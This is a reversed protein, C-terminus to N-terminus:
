RSQEAALKRKLEDVEEGLRGSEGELEECFKEYRDREQTVDALKTELIKVSEEHKVVQEELTSIQTRCVSLQQEYLERADSSVGPSSSPNM